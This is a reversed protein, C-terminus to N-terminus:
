IDDIDLEDADDAAAAAPAAAPKAAVASPKAPAAAALKAAPKVPAEDESEEEDSEEETDEEEDDEDSEEEATRLWTIMPEVAKRVDEAFSKRVFDRTPKAFWEFLIAEDFVDNDYFCKLLLPAKALVAASDKCMREFCGLLFIKDDHSAAFQILVPAFKKVRVAIANPDKDTLLAESLVGPLFKGLRRERTLTDLFTKVDAASRDSALRFKKLEDIAADSTFYLDCCAVSALLPCVSM